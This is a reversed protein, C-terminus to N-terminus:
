PIVYIQPEPLGLFKSVTYTANYAGCRDFICIDGIQPQAIAQASQGIVDDRNCSSGVFLPQVQAADPAEGQPRFIHPARPKRFQNETQCLLFNQAIGGDCITYHQQDIRKNNSVRTLFAGASGFVGRGSEHLLALHAPLAALLQRYRAFDFEENRWNDSFGGGLNLMTLQDGYRVEIEAVMQPAIGALDLAVRNFSYSGSFLHLGGLKLKDAHTKIYDVAACADDWDMGFHDGRLKGLDPKFRKLVSSNLRLLVPEISRNAGHEHIARLQALSDVIFHGKAGLGARILNRDMHPNNIFLKAGTTKILMNLEALSAAEIGTANAGLRLLLDIQSNAKMSVVLGTGLAARLDDYNRQITEVDYVYCPTQFSNPDDRLVRQIKELM